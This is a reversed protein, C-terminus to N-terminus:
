DITELLGVAYRSPVGFVIRGGSGEQGGYLVGVVEGNRDFIPSGSAGEAGYADVQLLDDLIKSVSGAWFSTRAFEGSMPLETGLPFGILAIPDGQRVTDSRANLQVTPVGGTIDVKIAAIDAEPSLGVIQARWNQRSDAFRVAIRDPRRSGDQGTVVHRNTLLVGDSRVAFATATVGEGPAFEVWIMAVARQNREVIGGYDVFAATQQYQLAQSADALQQKLAEVEEDSGGQQASALLERLRGVETQSHRLAGALGEVKGQLAHMADDAAGLLSDTRAQIGAMEAARRREQQHSAFMFVAAVVVISALLGFVVGRLKRTQRGVEVRIRETTSVRGQGQDVAAAAPSHAARTGAAMVGDPTGDAVLRFELIPGEEGLRIQDTDDLKTDRTIRHGNVLTGNRSGLDRVLWRDDQGVIAAHRASVDLDREPDFRLDCAPHRGFGIYPKSFVETYGARAGTLVKVQAKV